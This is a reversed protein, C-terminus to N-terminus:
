RVSVRLTLAGSDQGFGVAVSSFPIQVQANGPILSAVNMSFVLSEKLSKSRELETALGGVISFGPAKGRASAITAAISRESNISLSMVSLNDFTALLMNQEVNTGAVAAKEDETMGDALKTTYRDVEIGEIDLAKEQFSIDLKMGMMESTGAIARDAMLTLMKRWGTRMADADSTGMLYTVDMNPAVPNSMDMTMSVATQGDLTAFWEELIAPLESNDGTSIMANMMKSSFELMPKLAAGARLDGSFVIAGSASAPLKGLLAHQSPVQAAALAAMTTGRKPIIRMHLESADGATAVRLEVVESQEGMAIIAEEYALMISRVAAGGPQAAFMADMNKFAGQLDDKYSALVVDPYIRAVMEKSPVSFSAFALSKVSEVAAPDGVLALGNKLVISLGAAKAAAELKASDQAKVLAVLPTKHTEPNVVFASIPANLDAGSLDM